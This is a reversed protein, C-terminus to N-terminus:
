LGRFFERTFRPDLGQFFEIALDAKAAIAPYKEVIAWFEPENMFLKEVISNFDDELTAQAYQHLFGLRNSEADYELSDRGRAIAQVGSDGYQFDRPNLARWRAEGFQTSNSRLLISSFEHHLTEEIFAEDADACALYVTDSSNTGAAHIGSFELTGVVVVRTLHRRLLDLPYKQLGRVVAQEAVGKLFEDSSRHSFALSNSGLPRASASYPPGIWEKPFVEPGAAFVLPVIQAAPRDIAPRAVYGGCSLVSLAISGFFGLALTFKSEHKLVGM